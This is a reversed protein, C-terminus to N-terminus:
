SLWRSLIVDFRFDSETLRHVNAQFVIRGFKLETLNLRMSGLAKKLLREKLLFLYCSSIMKHDLSGIIRCMMM